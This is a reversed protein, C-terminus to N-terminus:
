LPRGKPRALRHTTTGGERKPFAGLHNEGSGLPFSLQSDTASSSSEAVALANAQRGKQENVELCHESNKRLFRERGRYFRPFGSNFQLTPSTSVTIILHWVCVFATSSASYWLRLPLKNEVTSM